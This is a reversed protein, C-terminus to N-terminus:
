LRELIEFNNIKNINDDIVTKFESCTRVLQTALFYGLYIIKRM